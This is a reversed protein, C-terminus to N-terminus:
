ATPTRTAARITRLVEAHCVPRLFVRQLRPDWGSIAAAAPDATCAFVTPATEHADLLDLLERGAAFGSGDLDLIIVAPTRETVSQLAAAASRVATVRHNAWRLVDDLLDPDGPEGQVMLVHAM